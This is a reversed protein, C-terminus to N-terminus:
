HRNKPNRLLLWAGAAFVPLSLLQGMTMWDLAVPGLHVDPERYFEVIFRFLGYGLLFLGSVQGSRRPKAAFIWVIVFLVVGELA